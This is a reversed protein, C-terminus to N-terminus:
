SVATTVASDFSSQFTSSPQEVEVEVVGLQTSTTKGSLIFGDHLSALRYWVGSSEECPYYIFSFPIDDISFGYRVCNVETCYKNQTCTNVIQDNFRMIMSDVADCTDQPQQLDYQTTVLVHM